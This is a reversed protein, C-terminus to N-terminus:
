GRPSALGIATTNWTAGEGPEAEIRVDAYPTATTRPTKELPPRSTDPIDWGEANSTPTSRLSSSSRRAFSKGPSVRSHNHSPTTALWSEM